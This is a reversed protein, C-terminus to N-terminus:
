FSRLQYKKASNAGFVKAEELYHALDIVVVTWKDAPVHDPSLPIQISLGDKASFEKFHNSLSLRVVNDNVKIDFHMVCNGKHLKMQIFLYKAMIGLSERGPKKSKPVQIYNSPSTVGTIVIVNKGVEKDFETKVQGEKAANEFQTV